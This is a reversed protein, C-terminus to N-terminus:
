SRHIRFAQFAEELKAARVAEASADQAQIQVAIEELLMDLVMMLPVRSTFIGDTSPAPVQLFHHPNVLAKSEQHNSILVISAGRDHALHSLEVLQTPIRNIMSILVVSREDIDTLQHAWIDPSGLLSISGRVYSLMLGFYDLLPRGTAVAALYLPRETHALLRATNQIAEIDISHAVQNFGTVRAHTVANQRFEASVTKNLRHAPEKLNRSLVMSIKQSFDRFDQFGLKRVFRTVSATSVSSLRAVEDIKSWCSDPFNEQYYQAIKRESVTLPEASRLLDEFYTSLESSLPDRSKLRGSM